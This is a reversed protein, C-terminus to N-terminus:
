KGGALTPQMEEDVIIPKVSIILETTKKTSSENNFFQGVVPIWGFLDGLIPIKYKNKTDDEKLLGGIILTTNNKIRFENLNQRISVYPYGQSTEGTISSVQTAIWCNVEMNDNIKPIVGMIVGSYLYEVTENGLKDTKVIPTKNGAHIASYSNNGTFIKPRALIKAKGESELMKLVHTTYEALEGAYNYVKNNFTYNLGDGAKDYKAAMDNNSENLGDVAYNKGFQLQLERKLANDETLEYIEVEFIVQKEKIDLNPLLEEVRKHDEPSGVILISNKWPNVSYQTPELYNSLMNKIDEITDKESERTVVFMKEMDEIRENTLVINNLRYVKFTVNDAVKSAVIQYDHNKKEDWVSLTTLGTKKANILIEFRSVIIVDAVDPNGVAINKIPYDLKIVKSTGATVVFIDNGAKANETVGQAAVTALLVLFIFIVRKLM